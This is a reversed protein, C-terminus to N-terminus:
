LSITTNSLSLNGEAASEIRNSWWTMLNRRQVLYEARNYAARVQNKDSHALAAEIVDADFGEENLTTSALARLGHAVLRGGFGMRRIAMNATQPHTHSRPNRDSPFIHERRESIPKMLDLLNLSQQSLPVIHEKKRKMRKAPITWQAKEFDIEVWEAGAAESPRVMTHLQFEILCHTTRRISASNLTRMLESLQEPKLTPFNKKDPSAFASKIGILPNSHILGTNVAYTMVENLRQCLRKVTEMAGKAAVPRLIDIVNCAEIKHIPTNELKPMIHLELSSEINKAYEETVRSRKIKLWEDFVRRFTNEFAEKTKAQNQDQQEKPDIETALLELMQGRIKRANALTLAPYHGLSLNARKQTHPRLYNFLWVKTGTTRVRLYLGSGDALNFEKDSPKAKKIQTDSLPIAIRSM